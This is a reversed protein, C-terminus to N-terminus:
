ILWMHAAHGADGSGEYSSDIVVAYPHGVNKEGMVRAATIRGKYDHWVDIHTLHNDMRDTWLTVHGDSAGVQDNEHGKFPGRAQNGSFKWGHVSASLLLSTINNGLNAGWSGILRGGERVHIPLLVREADRQSFNEVGDRPAHWDYSNLQSWAVSLGNEDVGIIKGVLKRKDSYKHTVWEGENFFESTVDSLRSGEEPNNRGSRRFFVDHNTAVNTTELENANM